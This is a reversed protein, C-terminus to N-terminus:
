LMLNVNIKLRNLLYDRITESKKPADIENQLRKENM